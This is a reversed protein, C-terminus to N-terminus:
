FVTLNFEDKITEYDLDLKVCFSEVEKFFDFDSDVPLDRNEFYFTILDFLEKFTKARDVNNMHFCGTQLNNIIPYNCM